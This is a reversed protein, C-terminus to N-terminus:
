WYERVVTIFNASISLFVNACLVRSRMDMRQPGVKDIASVIVQISTVSRELYDIYIPGIVIPNLIFSFIFSPHKESPCQMIAHESGYCNTETQENSPQCIKFM